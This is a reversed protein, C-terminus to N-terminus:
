LVSKRTAVKILQTQLFIWVILLPWAKMEWPHVWQKKWELPVLDSYLISIFFLSTWLIWTKVPYKKEIFWIAFGTMGIIFTPSESKHNFLILWILISALALKQFSTTRLKKSFFPAILILGAILQTLTNPMRWGTMGHVIGMLSTGGSAASDWKLLHLWSTYQGSLEHMPIVVLPLAALAILWFIFSLWFKLPHSFLLGLALLVIGFIKIHVAFALMLGALIWRNEKLAHFSLLFLGVLLANSQFNQLHGILEPLCIFLLLLNQKPTFELKQIGLWFIFSNLLNWVVAGLVLGFLQFPAMLFAFTPGYKFHDFHDLIHESYLDLHSMLHQFSTHFIKYNNFDSVGIKQLSLLLTLAFLFIWFAHEKLNKYLVESSRLTQGTEQM